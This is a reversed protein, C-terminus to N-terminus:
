KISYGHGAMLVWLTTDGRWSLCSERANFDNIGHCADTKTGKLCVNRLGNDNIGHCANGLAGKLCVQWLGHDKIGNCADGGTGKLCVQWLGHDKIGNCVKKDQVGGVKTAFKGSEADRVAEIAENNGSKAVYKKASAFNKEEAYILGANLCAAKVNKEDCVNLFIALAKDTNGLRWQMQGIMFSADINGMRAAKDYWKIAKTLSKSTMKGEAYAEALQMVSFQSADNKNANRCLIWFSAKEKDPQINIEGTSYVVILKDIAKVDGNHGKKELDDLNIVPANQLRALKSKIRAKEKEVEGDLSKDRYELATWKDFWYLAKEPSYTVFLGKHYNDAVQIMAEAHGREAANLYYDFFEDLMKNEYAARGMEYLANRDEGNISLAKSFWKVAENPNKKIDELGYLSVVGLIRYMKFSAPGEGMKVYQLAYKYAQGYKKQALSQDYKALIDQQSAAYSLSAIICVFCAMIVISITIRNNIHHM